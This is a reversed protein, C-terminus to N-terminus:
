QTRSDAVASYRTYTRAREFGMSELHTWDIEDSSVRPITVALPGAQCAVRVVIDLLLLPDVRGNQGRDAAGIAVIERRGEAALDRFLAHAEVRTDSAIALGRLQDKRKQLTELAREWSRTVSPDLAGCGLLDDLGAESVEGAAPSPELPKSLTFDAFREKAEFGISEFLDPAGSLDDPVEAVMLPPGLVALKQGLSELLHKAHGRRMFAPHVAIRHILTERARRAGIVVAIPDGDASAVMCSSCWVDLERIETKFDRSSLVTQGPFHVVYCANVADTLLQIDDTRCFRYATM